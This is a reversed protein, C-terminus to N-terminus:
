GAAPAASRREREILTLVVLACVVAWLVGRWALPMSVGNLLALFGAVGAVAAVCHMGRHPVPYHRQGLVFYLAAATAAGAAFALAAGLRGALPVLGIALAINVAAAALNLAAIRRTLRALALGPAFVYANALVIGLALWGVVAHAAEFAAGAILRALEPAFAALLAVLPLAVALFYEFARKLHAPTQPERYHRYVLPTVALQFGALAVAAISAIRYGAAYIGLEDLGLWAQVVWRDAYGSAYVAAGSVVLPASFALMERLVPLRMRLRFATKRAALAIGLPLVGWAAIAQSAVYGPLGGDLGAVGVVAALAAAAAACLNLTALAGPQLAWRLQGQLVYLLAQGWMALAAIRLV